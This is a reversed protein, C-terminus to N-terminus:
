KTSYALTKSFNAIFRSGFIIVRHVPSHWRICTAPLISQYGLTSLFFIAEARSSHRHVSSVCWFKGYWRDSVELSRKICYLVLAMLQICNSHPHISFSHATSAWLSSNFLLCVYMCVFVVMRLVVNTCLLNEVREATHRTSEVNYVHKWQCETDPHVGHRADRHIAVM